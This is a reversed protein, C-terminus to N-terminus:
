VFHVWASRGEPLGEAACFPQGATKDSLGYSGSHSESWLPAIWAQYSAM